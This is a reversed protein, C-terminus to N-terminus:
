RESGKSITVAYFPFGANAWAVFAVIGTMLPVAHTLVDFVVAHM